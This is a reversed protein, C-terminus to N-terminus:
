GRVMTLKVNSNLALEEGRNCANLVKDSSQVGSLSIAQRVRDSGKSAAGRAKKSVANFTKIRGAINKRNNLQKFAKAM